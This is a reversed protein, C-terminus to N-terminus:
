PIRVVRSLFLAVGPFLLISEPQPEGKLRTLPFEFDPLAIVVTGREDLNRSLLDLVNVLRADDDASMISCHNVINLFAMMAPTGAPSTVDVLSDVSAGFVDLNVLKSM